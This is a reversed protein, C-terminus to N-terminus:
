VRVGTYLFRGIRNRRVIAEYILYTLILAITTIPVYWIVPSGPKLGPVVFFSLAIIIPQHFLYVPYSAQGLYRLIKSERNFYISAVVFVYLTSFWVLPLKTAQGILVGVLEMGTIDVTWNALSESSVYLTICTSLLCIIGIKPFKKMQQILSSNRHLYYGFLFFPIYDAMLYYPFWEFVPSTKTIHQAFMAIAQFGAQITPWLFLVVVTNKHLRDIISYFREGMDFIATLRRLLLLVASYMLIYYLFWLHSLTYNKSTPLLWSTVNDTWRTGEYYIHGICAELPVITMLSFLFPLGIRQARSHLFSRTSYKNLMYHSFFGSMILFLPMRFLHIIEAIISLSPSRVAPPVSIALMDSSFVIAVHFYIGLVSAIARIADFYLIRQM